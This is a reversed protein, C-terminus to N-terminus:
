HALKNPWLNINTEAKIKSNSIKCHVTEVLTAPWCAGAIGTEVEERRLAQTVPEYRHGQSKRPHPGCAQMKGVSGAGWSKVSFLPCIASSPRKHARGRLECITQLITHIRAFSVVSSHWFCPSKTTQASLLRFPLIYWQMGTGPHGPTSPGEGSAWIIGTWAKLGTAHSSRRTETSGIM